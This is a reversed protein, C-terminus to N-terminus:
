QSDQGSISHDISISDSNKMSDRQLLQMLKTLISLRGDRILEMTDIGSSSKDVKKMKEETSM